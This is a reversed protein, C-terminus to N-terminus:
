KIPKLKFVPRKYLSYGVLLLFSSNRKNSITGDPLTYTIFPQLAKTYRLSFSWKKWSYGTQLLLASQSKYLFSDNFAKIPVIHKITNQSDAKIDNIVTEHQTVAGRFWNYKAGIGVFLHPKIYFNFSLPLQTYYSKQLHDSTTTVTSMVFDAKTKRSYSFPKILQPAVYIFETQVFWHKDKEFKIYASPIYDYLLNKNGQYNYAVIKQGNLPLSQNLQVGADIFYKRQKKFSIKAQRVTATTDTHLLNKKSSVATAASTDIKSDNSQQLTHTSTQKDSLSPQNVNSQSQNILLSDSSKNQSNNISIIKDAKTKSNTNKRLKIIHKKNQNFKNEAIIVNYGSLNDPHTKGPLADAKLSSKDIKLITNTYNSIQDPKANHASLTHNSKIHQYSRQTLKDKREKIILLTGGKSNQSTAVAKKKENNEHLFMLWIGFLAAIILCSCVTYINIWAFPRRKDKEELLDKMKQWSAGENRAPLNNIKREFADEFPLKDSM